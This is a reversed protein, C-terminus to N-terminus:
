TCSQKILYLYQITMSSLADLVWTVGQDWTFVNGNLKPSDVHELMQDHPDEERSPFLLLGGGGM